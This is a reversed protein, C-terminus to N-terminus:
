GNLSKLSHLERDVKHRLEVPLAKEDAASEVQRRDIRLYRCARGDSQDQKEGTPRFCVVYETATDNLFMEAVFCGEARSHRDLLEFFITELPTM